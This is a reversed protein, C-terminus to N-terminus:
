LISHRYLMNSSRSISLNLKSKKVLQGSFSTLYFSVAFISDNWTFTRNIMETLGKSGKVNEVLSRVNIILLTLIGVKCGFVFAIM